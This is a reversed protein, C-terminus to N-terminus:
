IKYKIVPKSNKAKLIFKTLKQRDKMHWLYRPVPSFLFSELLYVLYFKFYKKLLKKLIFAMRDINIEKGKLFRRGVKFWFVLYFLLFGVGTLVSFLGMDKTFARKWGPNKLLKLDDASKL